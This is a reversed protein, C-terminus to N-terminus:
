APSREALPAPARFVTFDDSHGPRALIPRTRTAKQHEVLRILVDGDIGGEAAGRTAAGADQKTQLLGGGSHLADVNREGVGINRGVADREIRLSLDHLPFPHPLAAALHAYRRRRVRIGLRCSAPAPATAPPAPSWQRGVYRQSRGIGGEACAVPVGDLNVKVGIDDAIEQVLAAFDASADRFLVRATVPGEREVHLAGSLNAEFVERPLIKAQM